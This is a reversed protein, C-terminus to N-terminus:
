KKIFETPEPIDQVTNDTKPGVKVFDQDGASGEFTTGAVEATTGILFM